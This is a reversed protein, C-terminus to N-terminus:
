NINSVKFRQDTNDIHGRREHIDRENANSFIAQCKRCKYEEVPQTVDYDYGCDHLLLEEFSTFEKGCLICPMQSLNGAM